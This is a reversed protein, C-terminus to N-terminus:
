KMHLEIRQEFSINITNFLIVPSYEKVDGFPCYSLLFFDSKSFYLLLIVPLNRQVSEALVNGQSDDNLVCQPYFQSILRESM